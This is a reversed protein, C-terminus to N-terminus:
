ITKDGKKWNAPCMGQTKQIQNYAEILRIYEFINRGISMHNVSEYFVIGNEDLLYTARNSVNDGMYEDDFIDYDLIGLTESLQRTSDSLIPFTIGEIGGKNKPTKLWANHVEITDCSIAFVKTNLEEFRSLHEQLAFLETPCVTSFDKPYWFLLIKSNYSLAENYIDIRLQTNPINVAKLLYSKPFPKGIYM